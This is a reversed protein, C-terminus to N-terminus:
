GIVGRVPLGCERSYASLEPGEEYDDEEYKIPHLYFRFTQGYPSDFTDDGSNVDLISSWIDQEEKHWFSGSSADGVVPIFISKSSDKKSTFTVGSVDESATLATATNDILEQIQEPTPMHWRGGMHIHAADDELGLTDGYGTYKTYTRGSNWKYDAETFQKDKGIQEATYGSADGLQFYLGYDTPKSAGVNCTAWLTGSPLELDVFAEPYNYHVEKSDISFSVNPKGYRDGDMYALYDNEKNFKKLYIM